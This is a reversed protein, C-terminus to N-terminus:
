TEFYGTKKPRWNEKEEKPCFITAVNNTLLSTLTSGIVSCFTEMGGPNSGPGGSGYDFYGSIETAITRKRKAEEEADVATSATQSSFLLSM